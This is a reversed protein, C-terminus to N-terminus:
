QQAVFFILAGTKVKLSGGSFHVFLKLRCFTFTAILATCVKEVLLIPIQLLDIEFLM